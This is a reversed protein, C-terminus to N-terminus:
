LIGGGEQEEIGQLKDLAKKGFFIDSDVISFLDGVAEIKSRLITFGMQNSPLLRVMNDILINQTRLIVDALYPNAEYYEKFARAREAREIVEEPTM